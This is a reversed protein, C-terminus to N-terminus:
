GSFSVSNLARSQLLTHPISAGVPVLAALSVSASWPSTVAWLSPPVWLLPVAGAPSRVLGAREPSGQAADGVRSLQLSPPFGPSYLPVSFADGWCLRTIWTGCWSAPAPASGRSRGSAPSTAWGASCRPSTTSARAWCWCSCGGPGTSSPC